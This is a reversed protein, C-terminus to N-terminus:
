PLSISITVTDSYTDATVVNGLNELRPYSVSIPFTIVGRALAANFAYRYATSLNIGTTTGFSLSYPYADSNGSSSSALRGGNASEIVFVWVGKINTSITVNGINASDSNVLDFSETEIISSELEYLPPVTALIAISISTQAWLGTLATLSLVLLMVVKKM